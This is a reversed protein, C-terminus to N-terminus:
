VRYILLLRQPRQTKAAATNLSSSRDADTTDTGLVDEFPKYYQKDNTLVPDPVRPFDIELCRRPRCCSIDNCKRIQFLYQRQICHTALFRQYATCTTLDNAQYHGLPIAPDIEHVKRELDLISDDGAAQLCQFPQGKLSLTETRNM